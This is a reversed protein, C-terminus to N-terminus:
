PCTRETRPSALKWPPESELEEDPTISTAPFTVNAPLVTGGLLRVIRHAPFQVASALKPGPEPTTSSSPAEGVSIACAVAPPVMLKWVSTILFPMRDGALSKVIAAVLMTM